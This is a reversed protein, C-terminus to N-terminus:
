TMECCALITKREVRCNGAPVTLAAFTFPEASIDSTRRNTQLSENLPFIALNLILEFPEEAIAGCM